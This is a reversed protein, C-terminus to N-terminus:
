APLGSAPSTCCSLSLSGSSICFGWVGLQELMHSAAATKQDRVLVTIANLSNFLFHPNLQMRLAGLKAEALQQSLHASRAEQERAETFYAVAHAVGLLAFYIAVGFPLTTLLWGIVFRATPAGERGPLLLWRLFIGSGAWLVCAGLSATLHVPVSRLLRGRHLPFRRAMLFVLPTLAAYLLWDGGEWLLVRPRPPAGEWLRSRVYADLIALIAPGIWAASILMWPRVPGFKRLIQAM